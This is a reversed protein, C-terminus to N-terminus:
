RKPLGEHAQGEVVVLSPRDPDIAVRHHGRSRARALGGHQALTEQPEEALAAGRDVLDQGQGEGLLGGGLHVLADVLAQASGPLRQTRSQLAEVARLDRGEVAEAGLDDAAGAAAVAQRPIEAVVLLRNLEECPLRTEVEEQFVQALRRDRLQDPDLSELRQPPPQQGVKGKSMEAESRPQIEGRHDLGLQGAAPVVQVLTERLEGGVGTPQQGDLRPDLGQLGVLLRHPPDRGELRRDRLSFAPLGQRNQFGEGQALGAAARRRIQLFHVGEDVGDAQLDILGLGHQVGQLAAGQKSLDEGEELDKLSAEDLDLAHSPQHGKLIHGLQGHVDQEVVMGEPPEVLPTEAMDQDVLELVVVTELPVQQKQQGFARLGAALGDGRRGLQLLVLQKEHPVFLLRDVTEPAGIDPHELGQVALDLLRPPVAELEVAVVAAFRPEDGEEVAQEGPHEGGALRGRGPCRRSQLRRSLLRRSRSWASWLGELGAELAHLGAPGGAAPCGLNVQEDLRRRLIGAPLQGAVPLGFGVRHGAEHTLGDLVAGQVDSSGSLTPGRAVVVEGHEQARGAVLHVVLTHEAREADRVGGLVQAAQEQFRRDVVEVEQKLQGHVRPIALGIGSEETGGKDVEGVFGQHPQEESGGPIDGGEVGRAAPFRAAGRVARTRRPIGGRHLEGWGTRVEKRRRPDAIGGLPLLEASGERGVPEYALM